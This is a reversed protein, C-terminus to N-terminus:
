LPGRNSTQPTVPILGPPQELCSAPGHVSGYVLHCEDGDWGTHPQHRLAVVVGTAANERLAKIGDKLANLHKFRPSIAM